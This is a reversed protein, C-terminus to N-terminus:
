LRGITPLFNNLPMKSNNECIKSTHKACPTRIAPHIQWSMMKEHQNGHEDNDICETRERKKKRIFNRAHNAAITYLWTYFASQGNFYRLSRYAKLFSEQAVDYADAESGLMQYLMAHLKRSYRHTLEDFARTVGQLTLEILKSDELTNM